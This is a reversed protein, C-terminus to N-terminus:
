KGVWVGVGNRLVVGLANLSQELRGPFDVEILMADDVFMHSIFPFNGTVPSLSRHACHLKTILRACTQFYGPSASWGFPLALWFLVIDHALGLENGPFETCLIFVCDPHTSVRKFAESVDRKTVRRPVGPFNRGRM